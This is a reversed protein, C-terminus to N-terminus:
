EGLAIRNRRWEDFGMHRANDRHWRETASELRAGAKEFLERLKEMSGPGQESRERRAISRAIELKINESTRSLNEKQLSIPKSM